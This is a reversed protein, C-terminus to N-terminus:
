SPKSMWNLFLKMAERKKEDLSYSIVNQVYRALNGHNSHAMQEVAIDRQSLGLEIAKEFESIFDDSLKKNSVWCAFVFPLGTHKKWEASLDYVHAYKELLPFARDGIVVGATKEGIRNIFDADASEWKPQINWKNVALYQVLQVSTRSQYDLLITDIEELPVDSFLCVSEVPGDAGICYDSVIHAEKLEPIIAVPVLGLDVEGKLLKRACDAPM